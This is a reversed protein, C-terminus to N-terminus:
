FELIGRLSILLKEFVEKRINFIHQQSYGLEMSTKAISMGQIYRIVIFKRELEDLESLALDISDIILEYRKIDEYLDLARKSEIRDIAVNETSSSINFTSGGGGIVDYTATVNPMIYNLQNTLNKIGVKYMNYNKIHNEIKKIQKKKKNM